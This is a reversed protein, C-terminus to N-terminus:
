ACHSVWKLLGALALPNDWADWPTQGAWTM